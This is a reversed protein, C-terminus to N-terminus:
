KWVSGAAILTILLLVVDILVVSTALHCKFPALVTWGWRPPPLSMRVPFGPSVVVASTSAGIMSGFTFAHVGGKALRLRTSRKM